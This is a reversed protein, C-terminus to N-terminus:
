LNRNRREFQTSITVAGRRVRRERCPFARRSVLLEVSVFLGLYVQFQVFLPLQM